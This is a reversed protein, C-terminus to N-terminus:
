AILNSASFSFCALLIAGIISVRFTRDTQASNSHTVVFSGNNRNAATVYMTGAGIEAAANATMPEFSVHSFVSLRADTLTTSAANATLTFDSGASSYVANIKGQNIRNVVSAIARAFTRVGQWDDTGIDNPANNYTPM